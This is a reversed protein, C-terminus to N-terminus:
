PASGMQEADARRLTARPNLRAILRLLKAMGPLIEERGRELDRLAIRALKDADMLRNTNMDEQGKNFNTRTAPPALEVVKVNARKLQVRLSQTYSHMAAKTASYIPKLALPAFALGSTVNVIAPAKQRKLHPLFQKILQLPGILNTRIEIELDELTGTSENLNLKLGIGANNILINLEPFDHTVESYLKVISAPDGQDCVFTNLGPNSRRVYALRDEARGTILVTNGRALLAKALALGIGSTGGTVLITNGELNM